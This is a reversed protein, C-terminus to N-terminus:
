IDCDNVMEGLFLLREKLHKLDLMYNNLKFVDSFDPYEAIRLTSTGIKVTSKILTIHRLAAKERLINFVYQRHSKNLTSDKSWIRFEVIRKDSNLSIHLVV